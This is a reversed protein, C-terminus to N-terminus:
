VTEEKEISDSIEKEIAEMAIGAAKALESDKELKEIQAKENELWKNFTEEALNAEVVEREVLEELYERVTEKMPFPRPGM